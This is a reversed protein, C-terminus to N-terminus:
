NLINPYSTTIVARLEDHWRHWWQRVALAAAEIEDETMSGDGAYRGEPWPDPDGVARALAVAADRHTELRPRYPERGAIRLVEDVIQLDAEIGATDRDEDAARRLATQCRRVEANGCIPDLFRSLHFVRLALLAEDMSREEAAIRERDAETIM